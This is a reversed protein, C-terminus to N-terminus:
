LLNGLGYLVRFFLCAQDPLPTSALYFSAVGFQEVYGTFRRLFSRSPSQGAYLIRGTIKGVTKRGALCDAM